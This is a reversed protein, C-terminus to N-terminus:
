LEHHDVGLFHLEADVVGDDVVEQCLHLAVLVSFFGDDGVDVLDNLGELAETLLHVVAVVQQLFCAHAVDLFIIGFELLAAEIGLFAVAEHGVDHDDDVLEAVEDHGCALLYFQGDGADCLQCAGHADVHDDGCLAGGGVDDGSGDLGVEGGAHRELYARHDVGAGNEVAGAGVLEHALAVHEELCAALVHAHLAGENIRGLHLVDAAEDGGLLAVVGGEWQRVHFHVVVVAASVVDVDVVEVGHELLHCPENDARLLAACAHYLALEGDAVVAGSAQHVLQFSGADHSGGM